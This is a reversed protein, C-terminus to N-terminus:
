QQTLQKAYEYDNRAVYVIYSFHMPGVGQSYSIAGNGVKASMGTHMMMGMSSQNRLTKVEYKVKNNRLIDTVRAVEMSSTDVLLKKRNLFFLM